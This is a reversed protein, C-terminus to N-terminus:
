SGCHAALKYTVYTLHATATWSYNGIVSAAATSLTQRLTVDSMLRLICDALDVAAHPDFYLAAKSLVEHFVPIDSAVVPCDYQLAELGPLGFGESLSPAVYAVADRYLQALETESAEGWFVVADQLGQQAAEHKLRNIFYDAKGVIVYSLDPVHLRVRALAELALSLNKHPYASGVSLIYRRPHKLVIAPRVQSPALPTVVIKDKALPYYSSIDQAVTQSVTIIQRARWCANAVTARYLLVKAAYVAPPLLTARESPMHHLILDHITVVLPGRTLFPVNFHPVHVVDFSHKFTHWPVLVQEALSYARAKVAAVIVKSGLGSIESSHELACLFTFADQTGLSVLRPLLEVLYRGLGRHELGYLRADILIRM